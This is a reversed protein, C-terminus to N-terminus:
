DFLEPLTEKIWEECEDCTINGGEYCPLTTKIKSFYNRNFNNFFNCGGGLCRTCIHYMYKDCTDCRYLCYGQADIMPQTDEIIPFEM